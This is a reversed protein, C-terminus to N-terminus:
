EPLLLRGPARHQAQLRELLPPLEQLLVADLQEIASRM